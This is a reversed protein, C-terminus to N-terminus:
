SQPDYSAIPEQVTTLTFDVGSYIESLTLGCAHLPLEIRAALGEYVERLFGVSTRRMVIALPKHQELLVYAQLAEISLYANLKEDLDIAWTSQSLVEVIVVPRDQFVDAARNSECIVSADPYFFSTAGDRRVRIKTDSNYPRCNTGNLQIWLLAYVNGAIVNHRNTAGSMARVFGNVYESRTTANEEDALYREVSTLALLKATSM